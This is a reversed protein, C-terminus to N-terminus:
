DVIFKFITVSFPSIELQDSFQDIDGEEIMVKPVQGPENFLMPDKGQIIWKKGSGMPTAGELMLPMEMTQKTPNVIGLTLAKKDRTWAAFIDLPQVHHKVVVPNEGFHQRYLKLVLGTAAFASETKTTKIAGIVNVTQAYNAMFFIDSNRFYEHLSCAVGLADKLHYRVGLEGYIHDGYWYNWEDMAIPIKKDMLVQLTKRYGRHINAVRRIEDKLLDCHAVVDSKDQVYIHESLLDMYKGCESIMTKSWEGAAGVGILQISPDVSWMAKACTNHKEIYADLPMHGLQWDGYMENGIAWFKVNYPDPHGNEARVKGMPTDIGGNTYEVEQRAMEANGLGTNVTILPESDILSCLHLFEDIGVDNPEIGTWAPNKRPPRRDRDGIGDKWDYGSVFNGGPWRYIPSNLEKLLRIVDARFGEINNEPMLSITGIRFKGMGSSEIKIIGNDTSKKVSFKLLYQNYNKGLKEIIIKEQDSDEEGWNLTVLIPAAQSDGALIIRGVYSEGAMLALEEQMIGYRGDGRLLIEPTHEGVFSNEQVMHVTGKPGIIKWPSAKLIKFVQEKPQSQDGWPDYKDSVPFYFKRDEIM